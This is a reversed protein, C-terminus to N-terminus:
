SGALVFSAQAYVSNSSAQAEFREYRYELRLALLRSPDYRIGVVVGDYNLALPAFVYAGTPVVVQEVRAYPKVSDFSGPSQYGVQVYYANSGPFGGTGTAPDHTVHAWEALIEPGDRDLVAHLAYIRENADSGDPALLRDSYFSVGLELGAISIPRSRISALLARHGNVDGADGARAIDGARGNGIGVSYDLGISSSPLGGEAIVGVFHTPIYRNGFAIMEPRMASTQLWSGHHFTENWYGLPTHVRGASIKFLDTFDYRLRAREVEFAYETDGGTLSVEGFFTFGEDLDATVHGVMQGLRFGERRDSDTVSYNFDGFGSVRVAADDATQGAIGSAPAIAAVLIGLRSGCMKGRLM